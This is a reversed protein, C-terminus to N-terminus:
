PYRYPSNQQYPFFHTGAVTGQWDLANAATVASLMVAHPPPCAPPVVCAAAAPVCAATSFVALGFASVVSLM